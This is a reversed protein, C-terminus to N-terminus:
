ALPKRSEAIWLDLMNHSGDVTRSARDITVDAFRSYLMDIQRRSMFLAFGKGQLPGVPIDTFGNEEVEKGLGFGWTNDSFNSSQFHGGPKLVRFVEDCARQCQAFRNCYLSVNDIAADFTADPWPLNMYDGVRLDAELGESRLRDLGRQVATPSGDIGAVSFGERAMYWSCAGTGCGLDLIKIAKRDPSKYFRRAVFRIVYEPPYRGWEQSLFVDEWVPDWSAHGITQNSM